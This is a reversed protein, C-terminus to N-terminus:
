EQKECVCVISISYLYEETDILVHKTHSSFAIEEGFLLNEEFDFLNQISQRSPGGLYPRNSENVFNLPYITKRPYIQYVFLSDFDM